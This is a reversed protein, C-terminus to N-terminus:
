ISRRPLEDETEGPLAPEVLVGRSLGPMLAKASSSPM